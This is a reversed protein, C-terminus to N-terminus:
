QEGGDGSRRVQVQVMSESMQVVDNQMDVLEKARSEIAGQRSLRRNRAINVPIKSVYALGEIRPFRAALDLGTPSSAFDMKPREKEIPTGDEGLEPPALDPEELAYAASVADSTVGTPLYITDFIQQHARTNAFRKAIIETTVSGQLGDYTNLNYGVTWVPPSAPTPEVNPNAHIAAKASKEMWEKINVQRSAVGDVYNAGELELLTVPVDGERLELPEVFVNLANGVTEFMLKVSRGEYTDKAAILIKELFSIVLNYVMNGEEHSGFLAVDMEEIPIYQFGFVRAGSHYAVFCGDMGGIRAQFSYKLFASRILDYYEKEFSETQGQLYRILYGGAEQTM